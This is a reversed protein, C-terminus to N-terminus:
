ARKYFLSFRCSDDHGDTWTSCNPEWQLSKWSIQCKLMKRFDTSFIWPYQFGVLIVPVKCSSKKVNIIDRQIRILILMTGSLIQPYLWLVIKYDIVGEGGGGRFDHRRNVHFFIVCGSLGCIGIYCPAHPECAPYSLSCVYVLIHLM